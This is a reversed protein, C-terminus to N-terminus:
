VHARGIEISGLGCGCPGGMVQEHLNSSRGHSVPGPQIHVRGENGFGDGAVRQRVQLPKFLWLFKCNVQQLRRGGGRGALGLRYRVELGREDM